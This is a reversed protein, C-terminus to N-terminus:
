FSYKYSIGTIYDTEQNNVNLEKNILYFLSISHHKNFDYDIGASYRVNDFENGEGNNLQYFLETSIWPNIKKNLDYKISLKSRLYHVPAFGEEGNMVDRVQSQFRERLSFIIKNLKYRYSLDFSLRHRFSYENDQNRRQLFRYSPSFSLGKLVRIKYNLNLETFASGLESYNEILRIEQSLGIDFQKNIKKELSVSAWLGADNVQARAISVTFLFIYLLSKKNMISCM